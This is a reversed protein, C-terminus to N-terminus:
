HGWKIKPDHVLLAVWGASEKEINVVFADCVQKYSNKTRPMSFWQLRLYLFQICIFTYFTNNNISVIIVFCKKFERMKGAIPNIYIM